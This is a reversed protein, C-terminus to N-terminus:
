SVIFTKKVYFRKAFRGAIQMKRSQKEHFISYASDVKNLVMKCYSQTEYFFRNIFYVIVQLCYSQTEYFFRDIFYVIVQLCYSQAEYFFRNIFYM